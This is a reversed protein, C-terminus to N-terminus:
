ATKSAESSVKINNVITNLELFLKFPSHGMAVLREVYLADKVAHRIDEKRSRLPKLRLRRYTELFDLGLPTCVILKKPRGRRSHKARKLEILGENEMMELLSIVNSSRWGLKKTVDRVGCLDSVIM